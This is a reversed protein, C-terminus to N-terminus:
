LMRNGFAEKFLGASVLQLLADFLMLLVAGRLGLRLGLGSPTLIEAGETWCIHLSIANIEVSILSSLSLMSFPKTAPPGTELLGEAKAEVTVELLPLKKQIYCINCRV